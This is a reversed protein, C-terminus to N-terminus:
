IACTRFGVFIDDCAPLAFGRFKPHKLRSRTASSAGRLVRARGFFPESQAAWPGARYGPWPQLTGATWEHVDGWHFGRRAAQVAAVEWEVEAPLRRGAWRAWADAEWWSLHTAPQNGAMRTARGFRLQLVAGSAVGIQEVYRPGRRGEGAALKQLWAWGEPHWLESRDYGGDDVFEVFQAWGVPQADIEFAPVAVEHAAVEHDPAFGAEAAAGLRWRQAPLALPERQRMGGPLAPQLPLGLTQAMTLWQEGRLDEHYLVLRFAYLGADTEPARELLELTGELTQLLYGRVAEASPLDLSWRAAHPALAPDWWRDAQPEVSPLRMPATGCHAGLARQTNRSTWAEAFWGIHGALWLPLELGDQQPVACRRAALALEFQGLLHLTQNRADMLALSLAERGASRM